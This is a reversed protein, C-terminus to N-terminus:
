QKYYGQISLARYIVDLSCFCKIWTKQDLDM